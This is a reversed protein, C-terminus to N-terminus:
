SGETNKVRSSRNVSCAQWKTSYKWSCIGFACKLPPFTMAGPMKSRAAFYRSAKSWILISSFRIFPKPSRSAPLPATVRERLANLTRLTEAATDEMPKGFGDPHKTFPSCWASAGNLKWTYVYNELQALEEATFSTIGTKLMALVDESRWKRSGSVIQFASLVFRMLPEADVTRAESLFAPIEWRRLAAAFLRTYREGDRCIVSIDRYRYGEHLVLSRIKAATFDAEEYPSTARFVCVNEATDAQQVHGAYTSEVARLEDNQFRYPTKCYVPSLVGTGSEKALRMLRSATRRVTSFLDKRSTDLDDCCLSVSVKEAHHLAHRLVRYEQVTFGDFADVAVYANRFFDPHDALLDDLRTLDDLPDLYTQAVLAEYTGYILAIEKLKRSLSDETVAEATKTLMDPEIGCIKMEGVTNLLVDTMRDASKEFLTLQDACNELALTMLIRRGGDTLRKGAGGGYQLFAAQALRTFSYVQVRNATEAGYEMLLAHESEFTYQEPVILITKPATSEALRKRLLTTKGTGARGLILELM